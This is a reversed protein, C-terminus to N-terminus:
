SKTSSATNRAHRGAAAPRDGADRRPHGGASQASRARRDRGDQRAPRARDARAARGGVSANPSTTDFRSTSSRGDATTSSRCSRRTWGTCRATRRATASKRAGCAAAASRGTCRAFSSSRTYDRTSSAPPEPRATGRPPIELDRLVQRQRVHDHGTVDTMAVIASQDLAYKMHQSIRRPDASRRNPPRWRRAAAGTAISSLRPPGARPSRSSTASFRSGRGAVGSASAGHHHPRRDGPRGAPLRLRPWDSWMALLIAVVYLPSM